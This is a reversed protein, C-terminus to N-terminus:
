QLGLVSLGAGTVAVIIVAGALPVRCAGLAFGVFLSGISLAV